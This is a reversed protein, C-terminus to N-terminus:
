HTTRYDALVIGSPLAKCAALQLRHAPRAGPLLRAGSGLLVPMIKVEVADVVGAQLLSAFLAGGGFLWIDKGPQRKLKTITAAADADSVEVDEYVGQALTSSFVIARHSFRPRGPGAKLVTEFTKRGMVFCDFQGFLAGFDVSPDAAIWDHGGDAAAIYGDLSMAVNYRLRRMRDGALAVM